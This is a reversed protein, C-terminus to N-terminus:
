EKDEDWYIRQNCNGCHRKNYSSSVKSGCGPCIGVTDIYAHDQGANYEQTLVEKNFVKKPRQKIPREDELNLIVHYMIEGSQSDQTVQLSTSKINDYQNLIEQLERSNGTVVVEHKPM